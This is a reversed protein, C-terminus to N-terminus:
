QFTMNCQNNPQDKQIAEILARIREVDCEAGIKEYVANRVMSVLENINESASLFPWLEKIFTNFKAKNEDLNESDPYTKRNFALAIVQILNLNNIDTLSFGDTDALDSTDTTNSKIPTFTPPSNENWSEFKYDIGGSTLIQTESDFEDTDGLKYVHQTLHMPHVLLIYNEQKLAEKIANHIEWLQTNTNKVEQAIVNKIIGFASADANKYSIKAEDILKNWHNKLEDEQNKALNPNPAFIAYNNELYTTTSKKADNNIIVDLIPVVDGKLTSSDLKGNIQFSKENYKYDKSTVVKFGRHENTSSASALPPNYFIGKWGHEDILKQVIDLKKKVIEINNDRANKPAHINGLQDSLVAWRLQAQLFAKWSKFAVKADKGFYEKLYSDLDESVGEINGKGGLISVFNLSDAKRIEELKNCLDQLKRFQNKLQSVDKFLDIFDKSNVIFRLLDYSTNISGISPDVDKNNKYVANLNEFYEGVSVTPPAVYVRTVYKPETDDNLQKLFQDILEQDSNAFQRYTADTVLVFPHGAHIIVKGDKKLDQGFAYIEQSVKRGTQKAYEGIDMWRGDYYLEPDQSNKEKSTVLIGTSEFIRALTFNDDGDISEIFDKMYQELIYVENKYHNLYVDLLKLFSERMKVSARKPKELEVKLKKLREKPDNEETDQLTSIEEFDKNDLLTLPNTFQAIPIELIAREENGDQKTVILSLHKQNPWVHKDDKVFIGQLKEKISKIFRHYKASWTKFVEEEKTINPNRGPMYHSKFAWKIHLSNKDIRLTSAIVSIINSKTREYQAAARIKQLAALKDAYDEVEKGEKVTEGLIKAIGNIGDIREECGVSYRANEHDEIVGTENCAFTHLLMNLKTEDNNIIDISESNMKHIDEQTGPTSTQIKVHSLKSKFEELEYLIDGNLWIYKIGTQDQVYGQVTFDDGEITFSEGEDLPMDNPKLIKTYPAGNITVVNNNVKIGPYPTYILQGETKYVADFVSKTHKSFDEIVEEKLFVQSYSEQSKTHENININGQIITVTSKRARTVGTYAKRWFKSPVEKSGLGAPFSIDVVYYDAESGQSSSGEKFDIRDKYPGAENLESLYKYIESEKNDYVYGLKETSPLNKLMTQIDHKISEIKSYDHYVKDGVLIDENQFYKFPLAIHTVEEAPKNQLEPLASRLLNNNYDKLDIATRLSDGLKFSGMFNGRYTRLLLNSDSTLAVKGELGDQDFDGLVISSFGYYNAVDESLLLDQQGFGTVEDMFVLSPARLGKNIDIKYRYFPDGDKKVLNSKDIDLLDNKITRINKIGPAILELYEERSYAKEYNEDFGLNEALKQAEKKTSHVFWVENLLQKGSESTKLMNVIFKAVATSKGSGAIGEILFHRFFDISVDSDLISDKSFARKGAIDDYFSDSLNKATNELVINYAKAFNSFVQNNLVAALATMIAQEQGAIPAIGKIFSDKYKSYFHEPNIAARTALWWVLQTDHLKETQSNLITNDPQIFDLDKFLEALKTPDKLKEKNSEINFFEYLAQDIKKTDEKLKVKDEISLNLTRVGDKELKDLINFEGQLVERLNQYGEWEKPPWDVSISKLKNYIIIDRNVQVKAHELLKQGTNYGHLNAYLKLRNEFRVLDQILINVQNKDLEVLDMDLILENVTANYGVRNSTTVGDTRSAILSARLLNINVLITKIRQQDEQGISFNELNASTFNFQQELRSYVNEATDNLNGLGLSWDNVLKMIPSYDKNKLVGLLQNVKDQLAEYGGFDIYTSQNINLIYELTNKDSWSLYETNQIDDLIEQFSNELVEDLQLKLMNEYRQEASEESNENVFEPSEKYEEFTPINSYLSLFIYLPNTEFSGKVIDLYDSDQEVENLAANKAALINLLKIIRNPEDSERDTESQNYGELNTYRSNDQVDLGLNESENIFYRQTYKKLTDSAKLNLAKFIRFAIELKDKRNYESWKQWEKELEKIRADSIENIKKGEIHEIYAIKNTDIFISSIDESMEFLAKEIYEGQRKGSLIDDKQKLVQKLENKVRAIEEANAEVTRNVASDEVKPNQLENLKISLDVIKAAITNYEEIYKAAFTSKTLAMYRFDKDLGTYASLISENDVNAGHANLISKIINVQNKIAQKAYQDQNESSTGPMYQRNGFADISEIASLNPSNLTMKDVISLFEKDKGERVLNTIYQFAQEQNEIKNKRINRFDNQVGMLGGGLAGGVFSLGYRDIVNDFATLKTDKGSIYYAVNALSKAVDYWLEESVEEFGEAAAGAVVSKALDTGWYNYTNDAISKGKKVLSSVWNMKEHAPAGKNPKQLNLAAKAAQKMQMRSAKLEPLIWKGLDSNIIAYEGIAYGLTILAAEEPTAGQALLEAYSEKVTIGTMYAQSIYKGINNYGEKYAKLVNQAYLVNLAEIDAIDAAARNLSSSSRGANTMVQSIRANLNNLEAHKAVEKELFKKEAEKSFGAKGKVLAPAYKFIWRQEALQTFVDSGINLFNEMSWAHAPTNAEASGQAYDSSSFALSKTYGEITSLTPNDQGAFIKGLKAMLEVTNISVRAAIYYPSVPTFIPLVKIANKMLGGVFSKEKDDSDFFDITNVFTGDVTLTDWKSLVERGYIDRGNLNEYYFTGNYNIKKDGKKHKVVQGTFPDEHEGDSDYQALVRTNTLNEWWSDNPSEQWSKTAEDWVKQTQAIERVSFPSEIVDNSYILGKKQRLPNAERYIISENEKFREDPDAFINNRYLTQEQVMYDTAENNAFRNYQEVALTHITAFKENDFQGNTQFLENNKVIDLDKYVSANSISTNETTFGLARFDTENFTPNTILNLFYDNQIM